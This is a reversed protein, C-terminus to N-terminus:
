LSQRMSDVEGKYHWYLPISITYMISEQRMSDGEGKYYWYLPISITYM